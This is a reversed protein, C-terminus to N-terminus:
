FPLDNLPPHLTHASPDDEVPSPPTPPPSLISHCEWEVIEERHAAVTKEPIDKFGLVKKTCVKERNTMASLDINPGFHHSIHFYSGSYNKTTQPLSKMLSVMEEKASNGYFYYSLTFSTPLPLSPNEEIWRTLLILQPLLDSLPM